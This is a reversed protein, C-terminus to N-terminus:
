AAAGTIEQQKPLTFRFISGKGESSELNLTGGTIEINKRVMALGMGSGEVEDRPKLTQFMKFIESHFQVPIGPGDDRVAFAYSAGADEVTVAVHKEDKDHHKIANSILNMLIQQLPMRCVQIDAFGPSVEITCNKSLSLLALIDNILENGAVVESHREDKTWGVRAYELLDDLLKEMRRVRGRLMTMDKRSEDTLHDRLDEELWKSANDIVRLPARLDHSAAYAFDNLARNAANLQATRQAVQKELTESFQRERDRIANRETVDFVTSLVAIGSDTRLPILSVEIPFESGDRRLGFLERWGAMASVKPDSEVSTAFHNARHRRHRDRDREPVLVEVKQGMLEDESYGFMREAEHNVVEITGTHDVMVMACPTFQVITRFKEEAHKRASIDDIAAVMRRPKGTEDWTARGAAHIWIYNGDQRRLRCEVDFSGHRRLHMDLMALTYARDEPHLRSEFEEFNAMFTRDEVGLIEKFRASWYLQNAAIDWDWLGVSMSQLALDYRQERKRLEREANRLLTIDRAIKSAGIIQGTDDHIPSVTLSLEVASGDKRLRTTQFHEVTKGQRLQSIIFAEEPHLAPPILRMVSQGVMEDPSYGFLREAGVNWSCITGDLTKSIIADNSSKVIVALMKLAAASESLALESKCRLYVLAAVFWLAAITLGRNFLANWPDSYNSPKGFFAITVLATAFAAFVFSVHPSAFWLACFILPIYAIGMAVGRPTALDLQLVLVCVFCPVWLPIHAIGPRSRRWEVALLGVSVAVLGVATQPSMHAYSSWSYAFENGQLHGVAATAALSFILLGLLQLAVIGIIGWQRNDAILLLHLGACAFALATAASMRGPHLAAPDSFDRMLLQDIGLDLSTVYEVLTTASVVLLLGAAALTWTKQNRLAAALGIGCSCFALATNFKIDFFGPWLAGVKTGGVVWVTEMAAGLVLVFCASGVAIRNWTAHQGMLAEPPM